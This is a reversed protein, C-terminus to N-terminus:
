ADAFPDLGNDKLLAILEEEDMVPVGLEEAKTLKSGAADGAVVAYTKKSVSGAVKAGLSQLWEKVQSREFHPLTGTLVYTRGALAEANLTAAQTQSLPVLTLGQGLIFDEPKLTLREIVDLNHREEFFGAIAEAM